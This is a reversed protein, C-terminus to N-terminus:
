FIQIRIGVSHSGSLESFRLNGTGFITRKRYVTLVPGTPTASTPPPSLREWFEFTGTRKRLLDGLYKEFCTQRHGPGGDGAVRDCLLRVRQQCSLTSDTRVCVCVRTRMSPEDIEIVGWWLVEMAGNVIM